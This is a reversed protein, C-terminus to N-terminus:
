WVLTTILPRLTQKNRRGVCLAAIQKSKRDLAYAVWIRNKKNGVYTALEDVEYNRGLIIPAPGLRSAIKKIRAIVTTPSIRMIRAISRIGCGERTYLM